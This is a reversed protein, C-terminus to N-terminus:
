KLTLICQRKVIDVVINKTCMASNCAFCFYRPINSVWFGPFLVLEPSIPRSLLVCALGLTPCSWTDPPTLTRQQCTTGKEITCDVVVFKTGDHKEWKRQRNIRSIRNKQLYLPLLTCTNSLDCHWTFFSLFTMLTSLLPMQLHTTDTVASVRFHSRLIRNTAGHHSKVVEKTNLYLSRSVLSTYVIKLRIWNVTHVMHTNQPVSGEDTIRLWVHLIFFSFNHCFLTLVLQLWFPHHLLGVFNSYKVAKQILYKILSSKNSKM